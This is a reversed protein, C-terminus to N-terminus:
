AIRSRLLALGRSLRSKVTGPKIKLKEVIERASFGLLSLEVVQAYHVPISSLEDIIRSAMESLPEEIERLPNTREIEEELFKKAKIEERNLRLNMRLSENKAITYLYSRLKSPEKLKGQTLAKYARIYVEQAVDDIASDYQANLHRRIAALVPKKTEAIIQTFNINSKDPSQM